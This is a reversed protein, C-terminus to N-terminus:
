SRSRATAAIDRRAAPQDRRDRAAVPQHRELGLPQRLARRMRHDGCSRGARHRRRRPQELRDGRQRVAGHHQGPEIEIEISPSSPPRRCADRADALRCPPATACVRHMERRRRSDAPFREPRDGSAGPQMQGPFRQTRGLVGLLPLLENGALRHGVPRAPRASASSPMRTTTAGLACSSASAM